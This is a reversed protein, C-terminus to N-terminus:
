PRRTTDTDPALFLLLVRQKIILSCALRECAAYTRAGLWMYVHLASETRTHTHSNITLHVKFSLCVYLESPQKRSLKKKRACTGCACMIHDSISKVIYFAIAQMLALLGLCLEEGGGSGEGRQLGHCFSFMYIFNFTIKILKSHGLPM